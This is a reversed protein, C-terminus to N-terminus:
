HLRYIQWRSLTAISKFKRSWALWRQGLTAPFSEPTGHLPLNGSAGSLNVLASTDNEAKRERKSELQEVKTALTKSIGEMALEM